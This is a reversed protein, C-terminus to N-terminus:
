IDFFDDPLVDHISITDFEKTTKGSIIMHVMRTEFGTDEASEITSTLGYYEAFRMLSAVSVAKHYYSNHTESDKAVLQYM